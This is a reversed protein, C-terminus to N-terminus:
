WFAATFIQISSEKVRAKMAGFLFNKTSKRPRITAKRVHKTKAM